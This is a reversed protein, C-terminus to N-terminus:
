FYFLTLFYYMNRFNFHSVTQTLILNERIALSKNEMHSRYIRENWVMEM